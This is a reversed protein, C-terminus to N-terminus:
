LLFSRPNQLVFSIFLINHTQKTDLMQLPIGLGGYISIIIGKVHNDKECCGERGGLDRGHSSVTAARGSSVSPLLAQFGTLQCVNLNQFVTDGDCGGARRAWARCM